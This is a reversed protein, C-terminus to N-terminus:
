IQHKWQEGGGGYGQGKYSTTSYHSGDLGSCTHDTKPARYLSVLNWTGMKVSRNRGRWWWLISEWLFHLQWFPQHFCLLLNCLLKRRSGQFRINLSGQWVYFLVVWITLHLAAFTPPLVLWHMRRPSTTRQYVRHESLMNWWEVWQEGQFLFTNQQYLLLVWLGGPNAEVTTEQYFIMFANKEFSM